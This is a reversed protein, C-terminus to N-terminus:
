LKVVAGNAHVKPNPNVVRSRGGKPYDELQEAVLWAEDPSQCSHSLDLRIGTKQETIRCVVHYFGCSLQLVDGIEVAKDTGCKKWNADDGDALYHLRYEHM